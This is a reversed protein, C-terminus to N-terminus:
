TLLGLIDKLRLANLPAWGEADNDFYVFAPRGWRKIKEAWFLLEEETYPSRYLERSGHLRIYVFDATIEEVLSPYRGATDSICLAVNAQRLLRFFEPNHFSPHRIEITTPKDRDIRALFEEILGKEYRLTPPFQFLIVGLKESLPGIARYFRELSEGIGKLRKVHTIFRNAKISFLFGEPTERSWTEFTETRPTGYFTANIEVTDFYRSYWLLWRKSPLGPPYFVKRWHPYNWGSTGVRIQLNEKNMM